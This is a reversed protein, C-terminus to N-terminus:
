IRSIFFGFNCGFVCRWNKANAARIHALCTWHFFSFSHIPCFFFKMSKNLFWTPLEGLSYFCNLNKQFSRNYTFWFGRWFKLDVPKRADHWYLFKVKEMVMLKIKITSYIYYGRWDGSILEMSYIRWIEMYLISSAGGLPTAANSFILQNYGVM